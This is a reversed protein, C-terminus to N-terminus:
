DVVVLAGVVDASTRDAVRFMGLLLSQSTARAREHGLVPRSDAEPIVASGHDVHVACASGEVIAAALVTAQIDVATVAVVDADAAASAVVDVAAAVDSVVVVDGVGLVAMPSALCCEGRGEAAYMSDEAAAVVLNRM